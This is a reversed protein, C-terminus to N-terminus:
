LQVYSLCTVNKSPSTEPLKRLFIIKKIKSKFGSIRRLYAMMDLAWKKMLSLSQMVTSIKKIIIPM